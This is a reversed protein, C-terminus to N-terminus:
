IHILSLDYGLLHVLNLYTLDGSDYLAGWTGAITDLHEPILGAERAKEFPKRLFPSFMEDEKGTTEVTWQGYAWDRYTQPDSKVHEIFRTKNVGSMSFMVSAGIMDEKAHKLTMQNHRYPMSARKNAGVQEKM